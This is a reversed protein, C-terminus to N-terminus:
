HNEILIHINQITKLHHTLNPYYTKNKEFLYREYPQCFGGIVTKEFTKRATWQQTGPFFRDPEGNFVQGVVMVTNKKGDQYRLCMRAKTQISFIFSFLPFRPTFRIPFLLIKWLFVLLSMNHAWAGRKGGFISGGLKKPDQNELYM